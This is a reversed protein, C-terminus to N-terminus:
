KAMEVSDGDGVRGGEGPYEDSESATNCGPWERLSVKEDSYSASSLDRFSVLIFFLAVHCSKTLYTVM